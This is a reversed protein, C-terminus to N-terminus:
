KQMCKYFCADLKYVVLTFTKNFQGLEESIPKEHNAVRLCARSGNSARKVNTDLRQVM